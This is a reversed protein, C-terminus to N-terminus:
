FEFKEMKFESNYYYKKNGGFYLYECDVKVLSEYEEPSFKKKYITADDFDFLWFSYYETKNGKTNYHRILVRIKNCEELALPRKISVKGKPIIEYLENKNSTNYVKLGDPLLQEGSEDLTGGFLWAINKGNSTITPFRADTPLHRFETVLEGLSNLLRVTSRLGIIQYNQNYSLLDSIVIVYGSSEYANHLAESARCNYDNTYQPLYQKSIFFTDIEGNLKYVNNGFENKRLIPYDLDNYPNENKLDYTLSVEGKQNFFLIKYKAPESFEFEFKKWDQKEFDVEVQKLVESQSQKELKVLEVEREQSVGVKPQQEGSISCSSIFAFYISMGIFRCYSFGIKKQKLNM